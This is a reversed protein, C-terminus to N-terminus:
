IFVYSLISFCLIGCDIIIQTGFCIFHVYAPGTIWNGGYAHILFLWGGKFIPCLKWVAIPSLSSYQGIILEMFFLPIGGIFLFFFYPILFAGPFFCYSKKRHKDSGKSIQSHYHHCNTDNVRTTQVLSACSPNNRQHFNSVLQQIFM